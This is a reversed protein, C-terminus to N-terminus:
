PILLHRWNVWLANAQMSFSLFNTGRTFIVFPYTACRSSCEWKVQKHICVWEYSEQMLLFSNQSYHGLPYYFPSHWHLKTLERRPICLDGNSVCDTQIGCSSRWLFLKSHLKGTFFLLLWVLLQPCYLVMCWTYML